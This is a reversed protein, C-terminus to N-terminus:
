KRAAHVSSSLARIREIATDLDPPAAAERRGKDILSEVYDVIALGQKQAEYVIGDSITVTIQM